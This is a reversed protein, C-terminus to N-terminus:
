RTSFRTTQAISCVGRFRRQRFTGALKLCHMRLGLLSVSRQGTGGMQGESHLSNNVWRCHRRRHPSARSGNAVADPLPKDPSELPSTKKAPSSAFSRDASTPTTTRPHHRRAHPLPSSPMSSPASQSPHRSLSPSNATSRALTRLHYPLQVRISAPDPMFLTKPTLKSVNTSEWTQSDLGPAGM